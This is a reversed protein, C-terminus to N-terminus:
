WVESRNFSRLGFDQMVTAFGKSSWRLNMTNSTKSVTGTSVRNGDEIELGVKGTYFDYSGGTIMIRSAIGSRYAFYGSFQLPFFPNETNVPTQGLFVDLDLAYKPSLFESALSGMVPFGRAIDPPNGKTVYFTGVRGFLISYWVGKVYDKGAETIKVVADVDDEARQLVFSDNLINVTQDEFRYSLIENSDFDGFYLNAVSSLLYKGSEDEQYGIINLSMRQYSGRREHFLYGQYEGERLNSFSSDPSSFNRFPEKKPWISISVRESAKEYTCQGCQIDGNRGVKCQETKNSGYLTLKGNFFNYSGDTIQNTVCPASSRCLRSVDAAFQGKVKYAGFPNGIRVTDSTSRYTQLNLYSSRGQCYGLYEGGLTTILDRPPRLQSRDRRLTIDGINRGTSSRVKAAISNGDFSTTKLTLDQDSQSFVLSNNLLNYEVDDFHYSIYEKSDFGGFYLSLVAMIKLDNESDRSSIFDLKALQNLGRKDLSVTGIYRDFVETASAGLSPTLGIVLVILKRTLLKWM